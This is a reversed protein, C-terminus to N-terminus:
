HRNVKLEKKIVGAQEMKEIGQKAMGIMQHYLIDTFEMKEDDTVSPNVYINYITEQIKRLAQLYGDVGYDHDEYHLGSAESANKLEGRMASHNMYIDYFMEISEWGSDPYRVHFAWIFPIDNFSDFPKEDNDAAGANRSVMASLEAAREGQKGAWGQVLNEIYSKDFGKVKRPLRGLLNGLSKGADSTHPGHEYEDNPDHKIVPGYNFLPRYAWARANKDGINMEKIFNDFAHPDKDLIDHVILEAATGYLMGLQGPKPIKLIKGDSPIIWCLEKEWQPIDDLMRDNHTAIALIISPLTISEFAKLKGILPDDQFKGMFEQQAKMSASSEAYGSQSGLFPAFYDAFKGM